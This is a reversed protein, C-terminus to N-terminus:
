LMLMRAGVENTGSKRKRRGELSECGEESGFWFNYLNFVKGRKRKQLILYHVFGVLVIGVASYFLVSNLTTYKGKKDSVKINEAVFLLIIAPVAFFWKSKTALIFLLYVSFTFVWIRSLSSDPYEKEFISLSRILFISLIFIVHRLWLHKEVFNRVSCNILEGVKGTSSIYVILMVVAVVKLADFVKDGALARRDDESKVM